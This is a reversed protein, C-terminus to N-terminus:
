TEESRDTYTKSLEANDCPSKGGEQSCTKSQETKDNYSQRREQDSSATAKLKEEIKDAVARMKLDRLSSILTGYAGRIGHSQHWKQFLKIKMEIANSSNDWTVQDIIPEPLRHHRVFTKVEDLTMELVIDHVHHSLDIDIDMLKSTENSSDGRPVAVGRNDQSTFSKQKRKGQRGCVTDSTSTCEKEVLGNECITCQKCDACLSSTCYYNKACSCETNQTPTCNKAVKFGLIFELTTDCSHCRMCKDLDNIHDMFEGPKCPVCEAETNPCETRKFHGLGCKKCCQGNLSYEKETCTIERKAFSRKRTISKNHAIHIPVETDNKCRTEMVLVVVLLLHFLGGAM